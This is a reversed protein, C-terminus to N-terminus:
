FQSGELPAPALGAHDPCDMWPLILRADLRTHSTPDKVASPSSAPRLIRRDPGQSNNSNPTPVSLLYHGAGPGCTGFSGRREAPAALRFFCRIKRSNRWSFGTFISFFETKDNGTTKREFSLPNSAQDSAICRNYRHSM